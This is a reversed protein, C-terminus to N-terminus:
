KLRDGISQLLFRQAPECVLEEGLLGLLSRPCCRLLTLPSKKENASMAQHM